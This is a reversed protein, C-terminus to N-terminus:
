RSDPKLKVLRYMTSHRLLDVAGVVFSLVAGAGTVRVWKGLAARLRAEDPKGAQSWLVARTLWQDAPLKAADAILAVKEPPCTRAGKEWENLRQPTVNVARAVAAKTGLEEAAKAILAALETHQM